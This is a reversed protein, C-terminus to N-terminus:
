DIWAAAVLGESAHTRAGATSWKVSRVRATMSAASAGGASREDGEGGPGEHGARLTVSM